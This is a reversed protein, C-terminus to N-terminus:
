EGVSRDVCVYVCMEEEKETRRDVKQDKGKKESKRKM